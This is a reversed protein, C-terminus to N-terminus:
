RVSYIVNLWARPAFGICWCNLIECDQYFGEQEVDGHMWNKRWMHPQLSSCTQMNTLKPYNKGRGRIGWPGSVMFSVIQTGRWGFISYALDPQFQNLLELSSALFAWFNMVSLRSVHLVSSSPRFRIAIPWMLSEPSRSISNRSIGM